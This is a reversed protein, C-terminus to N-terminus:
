LGAKEEESPMTEEELPMTEEESPMTEEESLMTEEESPMTEEESLMTEEESPMTEEESPMTEDEPPSPTSEEGESMRLRRGGFLMTYKRGVDGEPDACERGWQACEDRVRELLEYMTRLPQKSMGKKVGLMVSVKYGKEMFQRIKKMRHGLDHESIAWSLEVEKITLHISKEKKAKRKEKETRYRRRDLEEIDTKSQVKCILPVDIASPNVCVVHYQSRDISNLISSLSVSGQFQGDKDIYTVTSAPIEEDMVRRKSQAPTVVPRERLAAYTRTCPRPLLLTTFRPLLLTTFRPLPPLRPPM